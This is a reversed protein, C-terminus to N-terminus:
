SEKEIYTHVYLADLNQKFINNDRYILYKFIM